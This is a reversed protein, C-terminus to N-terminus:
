DSFYKRLAELGDNKYNQVTRKTVQMRLAVQSLSLCHESNLYLLSIATRVKEPCQRLAKEIETRSISELNNERDEIVDEILSQIKSDIAIMSKRSKNNRSQIEHLIQDSAACRARISIPIGFSPDFELIANHAAEMGISYFEELDDANWAYKQSVSLVARALSRALKETAGSDGMLSALWLAELASNSLRPANKIWALSAPVRTRRSTTSAM